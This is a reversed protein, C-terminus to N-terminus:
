CGQGPSTAPLDGFDLGTCEIYDTAKYLPLIGAAGLRSLNVLANIPNVSSSGSMKVQDAAVQGSIATTGALDVESHPAIITMPEGLVAALSGGCLTSRLPSTLLGAAAFTQITPLGSNGVAYVQLSEPSTQLHCNVIRGSEIVSITGAGPVGSCNAPDDLFIRVRSATAPVKLVGNGKVVISCFSYNQGTLTGVGNGTVTLTRTAPDYVASGTKPLLPPKCPLTLLTLTDACSEVISANDNVTRVDGQDVDPIVFNQCGTGSGGSPIVGTVTGSSGVTAKGVIVNTGSGTISANSQASGLIKALGSMTLPATTSASQVAAGSFLSIAARLHARVRRVVGGSRGVGVVYRDLDVLSSTGCAGDGLRLLQSIRFSYTAGGSLQARSSEPCWKNGGADPTALPDLPLYDIDVGGVSNVTVVCNQSLVSEPHQPDIDVTDGISARSVAFAAADVAADAAQLARKMDTNHESQRLSAVAQNLAIGGLTIMMALSCIAVTLAIGEEGALRPRRM